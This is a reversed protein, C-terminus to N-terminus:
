QYKYKFLNYLDFIRLINKNYKNSLNTLPKKFKLIQCKIEFLFQIYNESADQSRYWYCSKNKSRYGKAIANDWPIFFSPALIHLTKAVSVPSYKLKEKVIIKTSVLFKEFLNKVKIYDNNSYDKIERSRFFVIDKHNNRICEELDHITLKGYKYFSINWNYLFLRVTKAILNFNIPKGEYLYDIKEKSIEYVFEYEDDNDLFKIFEKNQEIEIDNSEM